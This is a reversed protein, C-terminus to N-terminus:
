GSISAGVGNAEACIQCEIDLTHRYSRTYTRVTDFMDPLCINIFNIGAPYMHTYIYIYVSICIYICIHISCTYIYMYVHIYM